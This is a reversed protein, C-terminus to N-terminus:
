LIIEDGDRVIKIPFPYKGVMAEVSEMRGEKGSVHTFCLQRTRCKELYPELVDAEFHAMECIFLDSEEEMVLKPFDNRSLRCSLDGSDIVRKGEAEIVICYSPRDASDRRNKLHANPILWLHINEDRYHFDEDVAHFRVNGGKMPAGKTAEVFNVITDVLKQETLHVDVGAYQARSDMLSVFRPLGDVHDGHGHTTFVARVKEPDRGFRLLQDILPAGADVIYISEGVEIMICSCFREASPTGHSTGLFTIKM